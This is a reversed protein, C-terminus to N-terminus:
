LVLTVRLLYRTENAAFFEVITWCQSIASKDNVESRKRLIFSTLPRIQHGNKLLLDTRLSKLRFPVRVTDSPPLKTFFLLVKVVRCSTEGLNQSAALYPWM